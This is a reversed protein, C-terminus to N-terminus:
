EAAVFRAADPEVDRNGGVTDADLEALKRYLTSRGIGLRRAVEAMRGGYLHCAFRIAEAEIQELRRAHGAADLRAYALSETRLLPPLPSETGSDRLPPPAVVFPGSAPTFAVVNDPQANDPQTRAPRTTPPAARGLAVANALAVQLRLAGAPKVVFDRAGARIAGSAADLGAATVQVVVPVALGRAAMADLVGMGDLGPVVLDLLVVDFTGAALQDLAADGDEALTVEYGLGALASSLRRAEVPDDEVLLLPLTM